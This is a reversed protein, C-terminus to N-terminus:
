RYWNDKLIKAKSLVGEAFPFPNKKGELLLQSLQLFKKAANAPSWECVMTNYANKGLRKREAPDDLLQKVKRYLEDVNGNPYMCGNEEDKLLFPVSGIASNAVVACASNLSENLVAGWGENQDSTFLFIESQEMHARVEDPKMAGLLEVHGSLGEKEVLQKTQAELEGNGIMRIQFDYGDERLRKAVEVVHEPHKLPIFRSVWLISNTTKQRYIADVDEYKKVETFYGWQYTKNLFTFTKAYDAAAYASACLLYFNKYRRYKKTNLYFHWPLKYFPCGKKYPREAYKFTLKGQSLRNVLLSHPASGCIVVDAEDILQQCLARSEDSIYNQLVYSPKEEGGWGMNLREQDIPQTEILHYDEGLLGFLEDALPKQHHNYFNTAFVVKM